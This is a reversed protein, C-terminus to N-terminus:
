VKDRDKLSFPFFRLRVMDLTQTQGYFTAVVEEFERTHIYPNENELGHFTPLLQIMWPKFETHPTNPPFAICSPISTRTPNMFDNMSRNVFLPNDHPPGNHPPDDHPPNGINEMIKPKFPHESSETEFSTESSSSLSNPPEVLNKVFRGKSDHLRRM